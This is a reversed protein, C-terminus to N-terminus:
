LKTRGSSAAPAIGPESKGHYLSMLVVRRATRHLQDIVQFDHVRNRAPM